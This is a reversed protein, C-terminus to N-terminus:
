VQLSHKKKKLCFVAYSISPHSSNLRTSERSRVAHDDGVHQRAARGFRCAHLDSVNQRGHVSLGRVIQRQHRKMEIQQLRSVFDMQVDKASFLPQSEVNRHHLRRAIHILDGRQGVRLFIEHRHQSNEPHFNILFNGRHRRVQPVWISNDNGRARRTGAHLHRQVRSVHNARQITLGHSCQVTQTTRELRQRRSRGNSQLDLAVLLQQKNGEREILRSPCCSASPLSPKRTLLLM